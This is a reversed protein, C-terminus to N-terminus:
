RVGIFRRQFLKLTKKLELHGEEHLRQLVKRTDEATKLTTKESGLLHVADKSLRSLADVHDQNKGPRHLVEFDYDELQAAWRHQLASEHKMSRLWQLSYHDTYIKFHNAIPYNRFNNIGWVVTM